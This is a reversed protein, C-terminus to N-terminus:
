DNHDASLAVPLALAIWISADSGIEGSIMSNVAAFAAVGLAFLAAFRDRGRQLLRVIAVSSLVVLAVFLVLGIVGLSYMSEILVNHPYTRVGAEVRGARVMRQTEPSDDVLMGVGHGFVPREVSDRLAKEWLYRRIALSSIPPGSAEPIKEGTFDEGDLPAGIRGELGPIGISYYYDAGVVTTGAAGLAVGILVAPLLLPLMRKGLAVALAVVGVLLAALAGRSAPLISLAVLLAVGGAQALRAREGSFTAILLVMAGLASIHAATIPDLEDIPSFRGSESPQVLFTVASVAFLGIALAVLAAAMIRLQSRTLALVVLASPLSSLVLLAAADRAAVGSALLAVNLLFWLALVAGAVVWLRALRSASLRRRITDRGVWASVLLCLGLAAYYTATVATRPGSAVAEMAGLYLWFGNLVVALLVPPVAESLVRRFPM